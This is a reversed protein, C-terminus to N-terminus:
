RKYSKIRIEAPPIDPHTSRKPAEYADGEYMSAKYAAVGEEDCLASRMKNKIVNKM